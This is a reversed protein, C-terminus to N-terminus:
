LGEIRIPQQPKAVRKGPETEEALRICEVTRDIIATKADQNKMRRVYALYREARYRYEDATM